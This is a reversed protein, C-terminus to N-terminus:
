LRNIAIVLHERSRLAHWKQLGVTAAVVVPPPTAEATCDDLGFPDQQHQVLLKTISNINM